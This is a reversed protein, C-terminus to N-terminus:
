LEHFLCVTDFQQTIDYHQISGDNQSCHWTGKHMNLAALSNTTNIWPTRPGEPKSLLHQSKYLFGRLLPNFWCNGKPVPEQFPLLIIVIAKEPSWASCSSWLSRWSHHSIWFGNWVCVVLWGVLLGHRDRVQAFSVLTWMSVALFLVQRGRLGGVALLIAASRRHCSPSPRVWSDSIPPNLKEPLPIVPVYNSIILKTCRHGIYM